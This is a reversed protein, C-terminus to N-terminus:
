PLVQERIQEIAQMPVPGPCRELSHETAPTLGQSVMWPGVEAHTLITTIPHTQKLQQLFKIASQRQAPTLAQDPDATFTVGISQYDPDLQIDHARDGEVSRGAHSPVFTLARGEFVAGEADIVYNYGIDSFGREQVHYQQLRQMEKMGAAHGQSTVHLVVRVYVPQKLGYSAYTSIDAKPAEAGWESRSIVQLPEAAQGSWCTLVLLLSSFLRSM